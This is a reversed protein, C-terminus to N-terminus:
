DLCQPRSWTRAAWFDPTGVVSILGALPLVSHRPLYSLGSIALLWDYPHGARSM